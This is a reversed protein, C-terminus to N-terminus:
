AHSEPSSSDLHVEDRAVNLLRNAEEYNSESAFFGRSLVITCDGNRTGVVITDGIEKRYPFSKLDNRVLVSRYDFWLDSATVACTVLVEKRLEKWLWRFFLLLVVAVIGISGVHAVDITSTVMSWIIATLIGVLLVPAAVLVATGFLNPLTWVVKLATYEPLDRRIARTIQRRVKREARWGHELRVAGRQYDPFSESAEEPVDNITPVPPQVARWRAVTQLFNELVSCEFEDKVWEKAVVAVVPTTTGTQFVWADLGETVYVERWSCFVEIRRQDRVTKEISLGLENLNLKVDGDIPPDLSKWHNSKDLIMSVVLVFIVFTAPLGLCWWGLFGGSPALTSMYEIGIFVMLMFVSMGVIGFWNISKTEIPPLKGVDIPKCSKALALAEDWDLSGELVRLKGLYRPPQIEEPEDDAEAPAQYPNSSM